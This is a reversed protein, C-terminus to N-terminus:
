HTANKIQLLATESNIFIWDQRQPLPTHRVRVTVPVSSRSINFTPESGAKVIPGIYLTMLRELKDKRYATATLGLVYKASLRRVVGTFTNAPVHHCEDIVVCGFADRLDDVGRRALTMYSAITIKSGPKWKSAGITGLEGKKLTCYREICKKWQRLLENTHVVILAPQKRKLIYRLGIVTKGFGPPAELVCRNRRMIKDLIHEQEPRLVLSHPIRIGKCIRQQDDIQLAIDNRKAFEEIDGILGGPVVIGDEYRRIVYIWEPTNWTSFGKRIKVLYEPNRFVLKSRLFRYLKDPLTHHPIFIESGIVLHAIPTDTTRVRDLLLEMTEDGADSERQPLNSIVADVMSVPIRERTELYAWQDSAISGDAELFCTNGAKAHIGHLPLAILNGLGKGSHEDQSPFLRDFVSRDTIDSELLLYKGM